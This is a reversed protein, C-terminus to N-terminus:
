RALSVIWRTQKRLFYVTDEDDVKQSFTKDRLRSPRWPLSPLRVDVSKNTKRFSPTLPLSDTSFLFSCKAHSWFSKTRRLLALRRKAHKSRGNVHVNGCRIYTKGIDVHQCQSKFLLALPLPPSVIWMRYHILNLSTCTLFYLNQFTSSDFIIKNKAMSSVINMRCFHYFESPIIQALSVLLWLDHVLM